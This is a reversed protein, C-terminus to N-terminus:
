RQILKENDASLAECKRVILDIAQCYREATLSEEDDAVNMMAGATENHNDSCNGNGVEKTRTIISGGLSTSRNTAGVSSSLNIFQQHDFTSAFNALLPSSRVLQVKM